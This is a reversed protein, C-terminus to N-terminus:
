ECNSSLVRFIGNFAMAYHRARLVALGAVLPAAVSNFLKMLRGRRHPGFSGAGIICLRCDAALNYAVPVASPNGSM